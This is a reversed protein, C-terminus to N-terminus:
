ISIYVYMLINYIYTGEADIQERIAANPIFIKSNETVFEVGGDAELDSM